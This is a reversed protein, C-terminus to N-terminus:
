SSKIEGSGQSQHEDPSQKPHVRIYNLNQAKSRVKAKHDTHMLTACLYTWLNSSKSPRAWNEERASRTDFEREYGFTSLESQEVM